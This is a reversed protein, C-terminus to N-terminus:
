LYPFLANIFFIALILSLIGLFLFFFGNSKDLSANEDYYISIKKIFQRFFDKDKLKQLSINGMHLWSNFSIKIENNIDPFVIKDIKRNSDINLKELGYTVAKFLESNNSGYIYYQCTKLLYYIEIGIIVIFLFLPIFFQVEYNNISFLRVINIFFLVGAIIIALLHNIQASIIVTKKRILINISVYLSYFAVAALMIIMIAFIIMLFKM